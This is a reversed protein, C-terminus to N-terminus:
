QLIEELAAEPSLSDKRAEIEELTAGLEEDLDYREKAARMKEKAAKELEDIRAKIRELLEKVPPEQGPASDNQWGRVLDAVAEPNEYITNQGFERDNIAYGEPYDINPDYPNNDAYGTVRDIEYLKGLEVLRRALVTLDRAAQYDTEGAALITERRPNHGNHEAPEEITEADSSSHPEEGNDRKLFDFDSDTLPKFGFSDDGENPSAHKPIYRDTAAMSAAAEGAAQHKKDIQKGHMKGLENVHYKMSEAYSMGLAAAMQERTSKEHELKQPRETPSRFSLGMSEGQNIIKRKRQAKL